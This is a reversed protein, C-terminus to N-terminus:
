SGVSCRRVLTVDSSCKLESDDFSQSVNVWCCRMQHARGSVTVCVKSHSMFQSVLRCVLMILTENLSCSLHSHCLGKLSVHVSQGISM